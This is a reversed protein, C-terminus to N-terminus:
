NSIAAQYRATDIAMALAVDISDPPMERIFMLTMLGGALGKPAAARDISLLRIPSGAVFKIRRYMIFKTRKGAGVNLEFGFQEALEALLAIPDLGDVKSIVTHPIPFAGVITLVTNKRSSLVVLAGTRHREVRQSFLSFAADTPIGVQEPVTHRVADPAHIAREAWSRRIGLKEYEAYGADFNIRYQTPALLGLDGSREHAAKLDLRQSALKQIDKTLSEVLRAKSLVDSPEHTRFEALLADRIQLENPEVPAPAEELPHRLLDLTARALIGQAVEPTFRGLERLM